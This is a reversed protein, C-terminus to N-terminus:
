CSLYIWKSIEMKPEGLINRIEWKSFGFFSLFFFLDPIQMESKSGIKLSDQGTVIEMDVLM